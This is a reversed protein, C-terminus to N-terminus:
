IINEIINNILDIFYSSNGNNIIISPLPLVKYTLPKGKLPQLLSIYFILHIKIKTLLKLKYTYPSLKKKIQYLGM